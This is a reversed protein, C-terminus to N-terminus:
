NLLGIGKLGTSHKTLSATNSVNMIDDDLSSVSILVENYQITNYYLSYNANYLKFLGTGYYFYALDAINCKPTSADEIFFNIEIWFSTKTYQVIGHLM